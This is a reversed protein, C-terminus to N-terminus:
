HNSSGRLVLKDYFNLFNNHKLFCENCRNGFWGSNCWYRCNRIKTEYVKVVNSVWTLLTNRM